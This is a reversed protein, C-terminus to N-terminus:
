AERQGESEFSEVLQGPTASATGVERIVIGAAHNAVQAAEAM